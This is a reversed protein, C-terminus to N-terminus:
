PTVISTRYILGGAPLGSTNRFYTGFYENYNESAFTSPKSIYITWRSFSNTYDVNTPIVIAGPCIHGDCEVSIPYRNPLHGPSVIYSPWDSTTKELRMTDTTNTSGFVTLVNDWRVFILGNFVTFSIDVLVPTISGNDSSLYVDTPNYWSPLVGASHMGSIDSTNSAIDTINTAIAAEASDIDNENTTVRGDLASIDSVNTAIGSTNTSINGTNTAINGANSSINSINTAIDAANSAIGSAHTSLQTLLDDPVISALYNVWKSTWHAFWNFHQAAPVSSDPWGDEQIATTPTSFNGTDLSCIDPFTSYPHAM